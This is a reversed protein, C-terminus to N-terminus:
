NGSGAEFRVGGGRAREVKKETRKDRGQGQKQREM